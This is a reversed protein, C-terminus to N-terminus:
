DANEDCDSESGAEEEDEDLGFQRARGIRRIVKKVVDLNSEIGCLAKQLKADNGKDNDVSVAASLSPWHQRTAVDLVVKPEPPEMLGESPDMLHSFVPRLREETNRDDQLLATEAGLQEARKPNHRYAEKSKKNM